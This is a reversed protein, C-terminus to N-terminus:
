PDASAASWSGIRLCFTHGALWMRVAADSPASVICGAHASRDLRRRRCGRHRCPAPRFRRAPRPASLAARISGPSRVALSARISRTRRPRAAARRQLAPVGGTAVAIPSIAAADLRQEAETETETEARGVAREVDGVHRHVRGVTRIRRDGSAKRTLVALASVEYEHEAARSEGAHRQHM